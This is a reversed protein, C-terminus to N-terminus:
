CLDGFRYNNFCKTILRYTIQLVAQGNHLTQRLMLLMRGGSEVMKIVWLFKMISSKRLGPKFLFRNIWLKLLMMSFFTWCLKFAHIFFCFLLLSLSKTMCLCFLCPFFWNLGSMLPFLVFWILDSIYTCREGGGRGGVDFFSCVVLPPPTLEKDINLVCSM